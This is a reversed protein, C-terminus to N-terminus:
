LATKLPLRGVGPMFRGIRVAYNEFEQGYISQLYAEEELVQHARM